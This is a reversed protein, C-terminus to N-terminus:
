PTSTLTFLLALAANGAAGDAATADAFAFAPAGTLGTVAATADVTGGEAAILAAKSLFIVPM